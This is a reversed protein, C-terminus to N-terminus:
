GRKFRPAKKFRRGPKLDVTDSVGIQQQTGDELLLIIGTSYPIGGADMLEQGTVPTHDFHREIDDIFVTYFPGQANGQGQGQQSSVTNTLM